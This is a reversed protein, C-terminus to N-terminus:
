HCLLVSNWGGLGYSNVLLVTLARSQVFQFWLKYSIQLMWSQPPSNTVLTITSVPKMWGRVAKTVENNKAVRVFEGQFDNWRVFLSGFHSTVEKLSQDWVFFLAANVRPVGYQKIVFLFNVVTTMSLRSQTLGPHRWSKPLRNFVSPLHTAMPQKPKIWLMLSDPLTALKTQLESNV